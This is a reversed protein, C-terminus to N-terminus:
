LLEDDAFYNNLGIPDEIAAAVAASAADHLAQAAAPGEPMGSFLEWGNPSDPVPVLDARSTHAAKQLLEHLIARPETDYAGVKAYRMSVADFANIADTLNSM